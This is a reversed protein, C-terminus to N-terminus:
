LALALPKAIVNRTVPTRAMHAQPTHLEDDTDAYPPNVAFRMCKDNETDCVTLHCHEFGFNIDGGTMNWQRVSLLRKTLGPVYLVNHLMVICEDGTVVDAIKIKATGQTNAPVIQQIGPTEKKIRDSTTPYTRAPKRQERWHCIVVM